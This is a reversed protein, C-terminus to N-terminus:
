KLYVKPQELMKRAHSIGLVIDAIGVKEHTAKILRDIWALALDYDKDEIARNAMTNALKIIAEVRRGDNSLNAWSNYKGM